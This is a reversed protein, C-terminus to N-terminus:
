PQSPSQMVLKLYKALVSTMNYIRQRHQLLYEVNNEEVEKSFDEVRKELDAQLFQFRGRSAPTKLFFAYAYTWKLASRCEILVEYADIVFKVDNASLSSFQRLLEKAKAEGEDRKKHAFTEADQHNLYREHYFVFRGDNKFAVKTNWKSDPPKNCVYVHHPPPRGTYGAGYDGCMWCWSCHCRSCILHMCGNIKETPIKCEPNPCPKVRRSSDDGDGSKEEEDKKRLTQFWQAADDCSAPEHSELSCKLCSVFSCSQCKASITDKKKLLAAGCAKPNPCWTVNKNDDVFSNVFIREYASYLEGGIWVGYDGSKQNWKDSKYVPALLAEFVELKM